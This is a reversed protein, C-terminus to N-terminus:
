MIFQVKFQNQRDHFKVFSGEKPMKTRITENDKCYEFHKDRSVETPFCQLCNMYFHQECKHKSNSSRLLRSLSKIM